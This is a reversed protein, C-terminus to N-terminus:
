SFRESILKELGCWTLQVLDAQGDDELNLRKLSIQGSVPEKFIGTGVTRGRFTIEKPLSVNISLIKM